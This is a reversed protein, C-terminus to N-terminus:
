NKPAAKDIQPPPLSIPPALDKLAAQPVAPALAPEDVKPKAPKEIGAPPAVVVAPRPPPPRADRWRTLEAIRGRWANEGPFQPRVTVRWIRGGLAVPQGGRSAGLLREAEPLLRADLAVNFSGAPKAKAAEERGPWGDPWPVPKEAVSELPSFEATAVAPSWAKMGSPDFDVLLLYLRRMSHPFTASQPNLLRAESRDALPCFGWVHAGVGVGGGGGVYLYSDSSLARDRAYVLQEDFDPDRVVDTITGNFRSLEDESLRRTAYTMREGTRRGVIVSGDAYVLFLPLLPEVADRATGFQVLVLIPDPAVAGRPESAGVPPLALWALGLMMTWLRQPKVICRRGCMADIGDPVCVM